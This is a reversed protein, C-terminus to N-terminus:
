AGTWDYSITATTYLGCIDTIVWDVNEDSNETILM